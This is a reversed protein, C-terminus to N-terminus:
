HYIFFFVYFICSFSGSVKELLKIVLHYIDDDQFDELLLNLLFIHIEVLFDDNNSVSTVNNLWLKLDTENSLSASLFILQNALFVSNKRNRMSMDLNNTEYVTKLSEYGLVDIANLDFILDKMLKVCKEILANQYLIWKLFVIRAGFVVIKCCSKMCKVLSEAVSLLEALFGISCNEIM